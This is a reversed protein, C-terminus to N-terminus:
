GGGGGGEGVSAAAALQSASLIDSNDPMALASSIQTRTIVHPLAPLAAAQPQVLTVDPPGPPQPKPRDILSVQIPEPEPQNPSPPASARPLLLLGLVALHVGVTCAGALLRTKRRAPAIAPERSLGPNKLPVLREPRRSPPSRGTRSM